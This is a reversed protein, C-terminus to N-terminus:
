SEKNLLNTTPETVSPPQQAALDNTQWKGPVPPIYSSAPVSQQPPLAPSQKTKPLVNRLAVPMVSEDAAAGAQNSEFLRAYLMRLLGGVTLLFIAAFVAYPEANVFITFIVILPVIVLSLFFLLAGQKIGKKRPSLAKSDGSGTQDGPLIGGSAIIQSIGTLLFGCRSCFRTEESIQEQSCVPCYM